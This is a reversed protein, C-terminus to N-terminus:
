TGEAVEGGHFADSHGFGASSNYCSDHLIYLSYVCLTEGLQTVIIYVIDAVGKHTLAKRWKQTVFNEKCTAITILQTNKIQPLIFNCNIECNAQIGIM